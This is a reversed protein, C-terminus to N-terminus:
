GEGTGPSCRRTRPRNTTRTVATLAIARPAAHLLAPEVAVLAAVVVDASTTVVALVAGEVAGVVWAAGVDRRAARVVLLCGDAVREEDVAEDAEVDFACGLLVSGVDVTVTM